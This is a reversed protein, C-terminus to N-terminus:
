VAPKIAESLSMWQAIDEWFPQKNKKYFFGSHGIKKKGVDEPNLHM